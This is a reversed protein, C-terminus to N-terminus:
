RSKKAKRRAEDVLRRVLEALSIGLEAAEDRLWAVEPETFRIPIMTLSTTKGM